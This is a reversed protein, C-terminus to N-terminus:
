RLRTGCWGCFKNRSNNRLGCTSCTLKDRVMVPKEVKVGDSTGRLKITISHGRPELSGISGRQFDQYTDGGHVTIGDASSLGKMISPDRTTQDCTIQYSGILPKVTSSGTDYTYQFSDTKKNTDKYFAWECPKCIPSAYHSQEFQYEVRIIGDDIRDGRHESIQETKEIFRFADHVHENDMFGKLETERNVEILLKHGDLVDQGDITVGVQAKRSGLNKLLLSYGSGFPLTVVNNDERLIKGDYKVAVVFNDRFVM